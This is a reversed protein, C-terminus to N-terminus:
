RKSLEYNVANNVADKLSLLQPKTLPTLFIINNNIRLCTGAPVLKGETDTIFTNSDLWEFCVEEKEKIVQDEM